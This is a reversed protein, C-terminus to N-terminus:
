SERYKFYLQGPQMNESNPDETGFLYLATSQSTQNSDKLVLQTSNTEQKLEILYTTNEDPIEVEQVDGDTPTIQLKRAAGEGSTNFSYTTNEDPIEVEQIGGDTPIIQLKGNSFSFSYTTNTDIVPNGNTDVVIPIKIEQPDGSTPTAILKIDSNGNNVCTFTYKTDPIDFTISETGVGAEQLTIIKLKGNEFSFDYTTNTDKLFDEQKNQLEQLAESLETITDLANTTGPGMIESKLANNVSEIYKKVLDNYFALNEYTIAM